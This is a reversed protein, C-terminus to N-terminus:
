STAVVTSLEVIKPGREKGAAELSETKYGVEGDESGGKRVDPAGPIDTNDALIVSGTHPPKLQEVLKLDPLYADKAHDLFLVDLRGTDVKGNLYLSKLSEM